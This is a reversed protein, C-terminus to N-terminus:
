NKDRNGIWQLFKESMCNSIKIGDFHYVISCFVQFVQEEYTFYEFAIFNVGDLKFVNRTVIYLNTFIKPDTTGNNLWRKIYKKLQIIRIADERFQINLMEDSMLKKGPPRYYYFLNNDVALINFLKVKDTKILM